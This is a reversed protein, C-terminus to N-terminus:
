NIIKQINAAANSLSEEYYDFVERPSFGVLQDKSYFLPTNKVEREVKRKGRHKFYGLEEVLATGVGNAGCKYGHAKLEDVVQSATFVSRQFVGVDAYQLEGMKQSYDSRGADMLDRTTETVYPLHMHNFDSLDVKLLYDLLYNLALPSDVWEHYASYFADPMPKFFCSTCFYRREGKEIAIPTRSNSLFLSGGCDREEVIAGGKKNRTILGSSTSAALTKLKNAFGRDQPRHIEQFVVLKKQSMYDGWSSDLQDGDIDTAASGLIRSIPKAISDKGTGHSGILMLQFQPKDSINQFLSAFWQLFVKRERKDPVVFDLLDLWPKVADVGGAMPSISLGRWENILRKGNHQQITPVTAHLSEPSWTFGDAQMDQTMVRAFLKTAYPSAKTGQHHKIHQLDFSTSSMELCSRRDYIAGNKRLFYYDNPNLADDMDPQDDENLVAEVLEDGTPMDDVPLFDLGMIRKMGIEKINLQYNAYDDALTPHEKSLMKVVKPATLKGTKNDVGCHGHHCEYVFRGDEQLQLASGSDDGGSHEALNPCTVETWGDSSVRGTPPMAKLIPHVGLEPYADLAAPALAGNASSVPADLDVDFNAALEELTHLNDPQWHTLECKFPNGDEDCRTTKNNSGEPLRVLRTVGRMGTDIESPVLGTRIWANLLNTIRAPNEEPEALIYGWQESGASSRLRFSPVPLKEEALPLPIKECVDDVVVVYAADFSNNIRRLRGNDDPHFSSICYYQNSGATMLGLRRKAPMVSWCKGASEKDIMDPPNTFDGVLATEWDDEFIGQLFEINTVQQPLKSKAKAKTM